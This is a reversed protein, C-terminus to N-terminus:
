SFIVVTVCLCSKMSTCIWAWFLGHVLWQCGSSQPSIMRQDQKLSGRYKGMIKSTVCLSKQSNDTTLMFKTRNGVEKSVWLKLHQNVCSSHLWGGVGLSPIRPRSTTPRSPGRAARMAEPFPATGGHRTSDRARRLLLTTSLRYWLWDRPKNCVKTGLRKKFVIYSWNKM